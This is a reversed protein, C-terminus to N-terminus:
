GSCPGPRSKHGNGAGDSFVYNAWYPDESPSPINTQYMAVNATVLGLGYNQFDYAVRAFVKEAAAEAANQEVSLDISRQNLKANTMSRSATAAVTIAAIATMGLVMLLAYGNTKRGSGTRRSETAGSSSNEDTRLAQRQAVGPSGEAIQFGRSIRRTTQM